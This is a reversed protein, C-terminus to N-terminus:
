ENDTDSPIELIQGVSETIKKWLKQLETGFEITGMQIITAISDSDALNLFSILGNEFICYCKPIQFEPTFKQAILECIVFFSVSLQAILRMQTDFKLNLAQIDLTQGSLSDTKASPNSTSTLAHDRDTESNALENIEPQNQLADRLTSSRMLLKGFQFRRRSAIVIEPISEPITVAYNEQLVCNISPLSFYYLMDLETSSIAISEEPNIPIIIM